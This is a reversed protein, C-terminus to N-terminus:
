HVIVMVDYFNCIIYHMMVSGLGFKLASDLPGTPLEINGVAVSTDVTVDADM